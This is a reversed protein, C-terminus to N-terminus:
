HFILLPEHSEREWFLDEEREIDNGRNYWESRLNTHFVLCGYLMALFTAGVEEAIELHEILHM